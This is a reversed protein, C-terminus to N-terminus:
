LFSIKKKKKWIFLNVEKKNLKRRKLESRPRIADTEITDGEHKKKHKKKWQYIKKKKKKKKVTKCVDYVSDTSIYIYQSCKGAFVQLILQVDETDYCCFDIIADFSRDKFMESMLKLDNRDGHLYEIHDSFEDKKGWYSKGRNLVSVSYKNRLEEGSFKQSSARGM